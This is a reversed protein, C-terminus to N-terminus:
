DFLIKEIDKKIKNKEFDNRCFGLYNFCRYDRGLFVIYLGGEFKLVDNCGILIINGKLDVISVGVQCFFCVFGLGVMYVVYMGYEDFILM